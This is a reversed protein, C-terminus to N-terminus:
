GIRQTSCKSNGEHRSNRAVQRAAFKQRAAQSMQHILVSPTRLMIGLDMILTTHRVYQIDMANMESFTSQNKGSVQWSGTLGPLANFRERQQTSFFAYEQPLCPRPGVLSMEGKLVNLLQPLEDLGAARLLCGGPILRSDCLLDLKIMPSDSKVLHRLYTEHRSTGANMKMSRFKYLVFSRGDQGIREQRFLAPGRSVLRIWLVILAMLPLVIPLSLAICSLDLGRKWGIDPLSRQKSEDPSDVRLASTATLSGFLRNYDSSSPAHGETHSLTGPFSSSKRKPNKAKVATTM